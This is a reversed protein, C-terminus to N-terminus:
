STNKRNERLICYKLEYDETWFHCWGGDKYTFDGASTAIRVAPKWVQGSKGGWQNRQQTLYRYDHRRTSWRKV